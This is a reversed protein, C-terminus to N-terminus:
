LRSRVTGQGGIVYLKDKRVVCAANSRGTALTGTVTSWTSAAINYLAIENTQGETKGGMVVLEQQKYVAATFGVGSREMPIETRLTNWEDPHFTAQLLVFSPPILRRGHSCFSIRQAQHSLHPPIIILARVESGQHQRSEPSVPPTIASSPPASLLYHPVLAEVSADDDPPFNNIVFVM